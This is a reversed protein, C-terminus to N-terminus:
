QTQKKIQELLIVVHNIEVDKAAYVLTVKKNKRELDLVHKVANMKEPNTMLEKLYAVEFGTMKASDHNFWKRLEPSPAIEKLWEDVHAREKSVGRPWLRDVLLRYGDSSDTKEYIRKMSIM